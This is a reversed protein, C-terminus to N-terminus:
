FAITETREIVLALMERNAPWQIDGPRRLSLRHRNLSTRRPRSPIERSVAAQASMIRLFARRRVAPATANAAAQRRDKWQDIGINLPL